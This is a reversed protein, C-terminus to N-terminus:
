KLNKSGYIDNIFEDFMYSYSWCCRKVFFDKIRRVNAGKVSIAFDYICDLDCSNIVVDEHARIDAGEVSQAFLLSLRCNNLQLARKEYREVIQDDNRWIVAEKIEFVEADYIINRVFEEESKYGCLSYKEIDGSLKNLLDLYKEVKDDSVNVSSIIEILDKNTLSM